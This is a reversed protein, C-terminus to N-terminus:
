GALPRATRSRPLSRVVFHMENQDNETGPKVNIRPAGAVKLGSERSADVWAQSVLENVAEDFAQMGYMARVQKMPVHGKRFGPMRVNKAQKVLKREALENAASTAITFELTRELPNVEVQEVAQENTETM